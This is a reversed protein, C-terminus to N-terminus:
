LILVDREGVLLNVGFTFPMEISSRRGRGRKIERRM